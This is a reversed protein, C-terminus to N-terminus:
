ANAFSSRAIVASISSRARDVAARSAALGGIRSTVQYEVSSYVPVLHLALRERLHAVAESVGGGRAITGIVDGLLGNQAEFCCQALLLSALPPDIAGSIYPLANLDERWAAVAAGAASHTESLLEELEEGGILDALLLQRRVDADIAGILSDDFLTQALMVDSRRPLRRRAMGRTRIRRAALRALPRLDIGTLDVPHLGDAIRGRDVSLEVRARSAAESAALSLDAVGAIVEAAQDLTTGLVSRVVDASGARRADVVGVLRDRLEQIAALPIMQTGKAIHHEHVALVDSGLNEAKLRSTYDALAGAASSTFRNLVHIIPVGRSHARRLVEWPVLDAYRLASSVYVVVDANDIMTEAMARHQTSTSDIDPTDVLTLEDLIPARGTVVNCPVGGITAYSGARWRSSLVLPTKTTPRLPGAVSHGVGSVSNLLTSKGAGTPGAFVVMLPTAPNEIRPILYDRVTRLIWDRKGGLQSGDSNDVISLVELSAALAALDSALEDNSPETVVRWITGRM